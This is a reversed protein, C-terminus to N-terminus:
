MVRRVRREAGPVVTGGKRHSGCLQFMRECVKETHRVAATQHEVSLGVEKRHSGRREEAQSESLATSEELLLEPAKRKGKGRGRRSRGARGLNM